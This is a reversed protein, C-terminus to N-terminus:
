KFTITVVFAPVSINSFADAGISLSGPTMTTVSPLSSSKISSALWCRIQFRFPFTRYFKSREMIDPFFITPNILNIARLNLTTICYHFGARSGHHKNDNPVALAENDVVSNGGSLLPSM